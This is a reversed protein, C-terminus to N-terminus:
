NSSINGVSVEKQHLFEDLDRAYLSCLQTDKETMVEHNIDLEKELINKIGGYSYNCFFAARGCAAELRVRGYKKQLEQLIPILASRDRGYRDAWSNIDETMQERETLLM